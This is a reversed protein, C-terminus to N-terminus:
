KKEEGKVILINKGSRRRNELSAAVFERFLPHPNAPRSKFEPHYQVGLHFLNDPVEVSEVLADDPSTGGLVLGLGTFMDRYDNNFEYRHRHREMVSAAGKYAKSLLTGEKIKCEYAGLRMSGGTNELGAQGEMIDIVKNRSLPDFERSHADKLGAVNRAFEIVAIQMGLCIGFYPLDNERCYRAAEIMGEVGRDGFGGPVIIGDCDKLEEVATDATIKESDIWRLDIKAGNYIGAHTLAEVISLYTDFMKIYKGVLGITVTKDRRRAKDLMENWFKLDPPNDNLGLERSVIATFNSKELMIPAEYLIDVNSDEIVCDPEVNCFLAVKNRTEESVAGDTRLVIIDPSVGLGRLEKVSHQTPKTKMEGDTVVPALTVHVFLCNERGAEGAVQRIAEIFPQSEIDGTTGGIETIVVDAGIKKGVSYIFKKIEGTIHPIVQVTEGNYMGAREANLVNWYVKGTTLNSYKNLNVDIFREYHGLDLDTEAGDETVFVEGHQYPSMTGPDINIYPDLKQAIVKLGKAKLMMGLSAATIGKGLGSVVGGTVFIYKTM